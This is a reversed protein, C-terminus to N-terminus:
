VDRGAALRLGHALIYVERSNQRSAKPKCIKVSQYRQRMNALIEEFSTGHFCKYVLYGKADLHQEAFAMVAEALLEGAAQDASQNGSLNAAMDSLILGAAQGDLAEAMKAVVEADQFDGQIFQVGDIPPMPLLDCAIVRANRNTARVVQSWSGPASGLDIILRTSKLLNHKADLEQLKYAARGRYNQARAAKVYSDSNHRNLWNRSKASKSPM